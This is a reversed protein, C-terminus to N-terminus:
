LVEIKRYDIGKEIDKSIKIWVTNDPMLPKILEAWEVLCVGDGSYFYEEYGLEYMEDPEEIRYVDFHYLKSGLENVYENIITFTPSTIHEMIGLGLAFGQAFATKGAGLEGDLAYIGGIVARRGLAEALRVTEDASYTEYVM